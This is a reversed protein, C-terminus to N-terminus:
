STSFLPNIILLSLGQQKNPNKYALENIKQPKYIQANLLNKYFTQEIILNRLTERKQLLNYQLKEIAKDSNFSKYEIKTEM